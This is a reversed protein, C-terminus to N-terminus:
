AEVVKVELVPAVPEGEEAVPVALGLQIGGGVQAVVDALVIVVAGQGGTATALEDALAPCHALLVHHAPTTGALLALITHDLSLRGPLQLIRESCPPKPHMAGNPLSYILYVAMPSCTSLSTH